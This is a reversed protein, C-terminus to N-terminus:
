IVHLLTGNRMKTIRDGQLTSPYSRLALFPDGDAPYPDVAVYSYSTDRWAGPEPVLFGTHVWGEINDFRVLVWSGVQKGVYEVGGTNPPIMGIIRSASSPYGRINLVDNPSVNVVRM